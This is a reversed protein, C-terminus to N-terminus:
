RTTSTPECPRPPSPSCSRSRSAVSVKPSCCSCRESADPHAGHGPRDRGPRNRARRDTEGGLRTRLAHPQAAASRTTAPDSSGTASRPLSATTSSASWRRSWFTAITPHVIEQFAARSSPFVQPDVGYLRPVRRVLDDRQDRPRTGVHGARRAAAGPATSLDHDSPAAGTPLLEPAPAPPRRRRRGPRIRVRSRTDRSASTSGRSEAGLRRRSRHRARRCSHAASAASVASGSSRSCSSRTGSPWRIPVLLRLVFIAAFLAGAPAM